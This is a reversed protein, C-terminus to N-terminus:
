LRNRVQASLRSGNHRQKELKSLKEQLVAGSLTKEEETLEKDNVIIDMKNKIEAIEETLKPIVIRSKDRVKKGARSKWSAWLTQANRSPNWQGRAKDEELADLEAELKLGEDNLYETIDKNRILHAPWVWRGHGITPARETTLRLSIMRHDTGIGVTQIDWEFTHEFDDKKVLFKDIRSQSGGLAIPLGLYTKLDQFAEVASNNDEHSPLRDIADEVLNTDG